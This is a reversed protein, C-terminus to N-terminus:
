NIRLRENGRIGEFLIMAVVILGMGILAVAQPTSKSLIWYGIFPALTGRLGTLAMHVSMYSSAKERQAIKTVWLGWFLKGGGMAVGQFAMAIGLLFPNTTFFFLGLSTLFFVNLLNRTTVFHIRDFLHGWIKASLLSTVSPIIAM